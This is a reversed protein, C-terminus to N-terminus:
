AHCFSIEKRRSSLWHRFQNIKEYLYTTNRITSTTIMVAVYFSLLCNIVMM